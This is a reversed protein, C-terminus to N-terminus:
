TARKRMTMYALRPLAGHSVDDSPAPAPRAELRVRHGPYHLDQLMIGRGIQSATMTAKHLSPHRRHCLMHTWLIKMFTLQGPLHRQPFTGMPHIPIYIFCTYHSSVLNLPSLRLLFMMELNAYALHAHLFVREALMVPQLLLTVVAWAPPLQHTMTESQCLNLPILASRRAVNVDTPHLLVSRLRQVALAVLPNKM